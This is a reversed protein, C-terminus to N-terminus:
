LGTTKPRASEPPDILKEPAAPVVHPEANPQPVTIITKKEVVSGPKLVVAEADPHIVDYQVTQPPLVTGDALTIGVVVDSPGVAGEIPVVDVLGTEPNFRASLITAATAAVAIVDGAESKSKGDRSFGIEITTQQDGRLVIREKAKAM